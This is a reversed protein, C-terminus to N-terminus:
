VFAYWWCLLHQGRFPPRPRQVHLQGPANAPYADQQHV